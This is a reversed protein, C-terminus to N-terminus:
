FQTDDLKEYIIKRMLRSVTNPALIGLVRILKAVVGPYLKRNNGKLATIIHAALVEPAMRKSADTGKPAYREAHKTRVPGPYVTLINIGLRTCAPRISKAYVAIADKSACYVSAGPYGTANSLSSIFAISGGKNIMNSGALGSAMIMPTETNILLLKQYANAPIDEFKGTASIGANLVVWDFPPETKLKELLDVINARDSLDAEISSIQDGWIQDLATLGAKNYDIAMVFHGNGLLHVCLARGLGEVAGTILVRM